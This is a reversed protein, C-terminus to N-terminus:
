RGATSAMPFFTEALYGTSWGLVIVLLALPVLLATGVKEGQWLGVASIVLWGAVILAIALPLSAVALLIALAALGYGWAWGAIKHMPRLAEPRKRALQVRGAAFRRLQKFLGPLTARKHHWVFFDPLVALAHGLDRIRLHIDVDEATILGEDFLGAQKFVSARYLANCGPLDEASGAVFHDAQVSYGGLSAMRFVTNAAKALASTEEPLYSPGGVAAVGPAEFAKLGTVLWDTPVICDDDTSAIFEGKAAAFSLNRGSAVTQNPNDLVIAGFSRAIAVTRDTSLGDAIIIEIREQPYDLARLSALCHELRGEGNKVPICISVLPPIDEVGM